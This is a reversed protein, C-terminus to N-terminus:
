YLRLKFKSFDAWSVNRNMKEREISEKLNQFEYSANEDLTLLSRYFMFSQEAEQFLHLTIISGLKQPFIVRTRDHMLLFNPSERIYFSGILHVLPFVIYIWVCSNYHYIAGFIYGLFIGAANSVM